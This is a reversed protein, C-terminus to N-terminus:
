PSFERRKADECWAFLIVANDTVRVDMKFYKFSKTIKLASNVLGSLIM